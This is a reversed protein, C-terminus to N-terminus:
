TIPVCWSPSLPDSWKGDDCAADAANALHQSILGRGLWYEVDIKKVTGSHGTVDGCNTGAATGWCGNGIAAGAVNKIKGDAYIQALLM